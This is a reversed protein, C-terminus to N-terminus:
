AAIAMDDLLKFAVYTVVQYHVLQSSSQEVERRGLNALLNTLQVGPIKSVKLVSVDKYITKLIFAMEICM